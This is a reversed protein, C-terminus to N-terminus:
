VDLIFHLLPPFYAPVEKRMTVHRMYVLPSVATIGAEMKVLTAGTNVYRGNISEM